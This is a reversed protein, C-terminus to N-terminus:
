IKTRCIITAKLSWITNLEDLCTFVHIMSNDSKLKINKVFVSPKTSIIYRFFPQIHPICSSHIPASRKIIFISWGIKWRIFHNIMERWYIFSNYNFINIIMDNTWINELMNFRIIIQNIIRCISLKFFNFPNLLYWDNRLWNM